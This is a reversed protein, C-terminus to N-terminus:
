AYLKKKKIKIFGFVTSFEWSELVEVNLFDEKGVLIYELHVYVNLVCKM